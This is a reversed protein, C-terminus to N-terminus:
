IKLWQHSAVDQSPLRTQCCADISVAVIRLQRFCGLELGLEPLIVLCAKLGSVVAM